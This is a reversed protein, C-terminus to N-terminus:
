IQTLLEQFEEIYDGVQFESAERWVGDEDLWRHDESCIVFTGDEFTIKLAPKRTRKKGVVVTEVSRHQGFEEVSKLKDGVQVDRMKKETGDSLLLPTQPDLCFGAGGRSSSSNASFAMAKISAIEREIPVGRRVLENYYRRDTPTTISLYYEKDTSIHPQLYQCGEVVLKIDNFQYRKAQDLTTAIVSLYGDSHPKLGYHGQWNDLWLFYALKEAGLVGGLVGKSGRRGAINQIHPFHRYGRSKLWNVREWIDPQVGAVLSPNQFGLRWKEIVELDYATMNETELFVLKLLTLQRPFLTQGCFSRHTAFDVISEYPPHTSLANSFDQILDVQDLDLELKKNRRM